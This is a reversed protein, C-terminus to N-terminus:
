KSQRGGDGLEVITEPSEGQDEETPGHERDNGAQHRVQAGTAAHSLLLYQPSLNNSEHQTEGHKEPQYKEVQDRRGGPDDLDRLGGTSPLLVRM